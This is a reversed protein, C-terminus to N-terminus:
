SNCERTAPELVSLGGRTLLSPLAALQLFVVVFLFLGTTGGDEEQQTEQQQQQQQQQHQLQQQQQIRSQSKIVCKYTWRGIYM